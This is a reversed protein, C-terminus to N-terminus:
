ASAIFSDTLSPRLPMKPLLFFRQALLASYFFLFALWPRRRPQSQQANAPDASGDFAQGKLPLRRPPVGRRILHRQIRPADGFVGAFDM